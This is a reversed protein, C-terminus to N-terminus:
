GSTTPATDADSALEDLFPQVLGRMEVTPNSALCQEGQRRALDVDPEPFFRVAAVAYLCHGDAYEPHEAVVVEFSAKSQEIALAATEPSTASQSFIALLWATYTRAEANGPDVEVVERYLQAAQLPDTGLLGRARTLKSAVEDIPAGGTMVQGELRQGSSRAVALGSLSALAVVGVVWAAVVRRSTRRKAPMAARGDDISRMVAAARATYGDRLVEYDDRDVDGAELERELDTLSRLLFRREEELQALRDPDM